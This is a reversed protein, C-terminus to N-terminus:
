TYSLHRSALLKEGEDYKAFLTYENRAGNGHRPSILEKLSSFPLTVEYFSIFSVNVYLCVYLVCVYLVCM